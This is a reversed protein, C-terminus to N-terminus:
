SNWLIKQHMQQLWKSIEYADIHMYFLVKWSLNSQFCVCTYVICTGIFVCVGTICFDCFTLHSTEFETVRESSGLHIRSQAGSFFIRIDFILTDCSGFIITIFIYYSFLNKLFYHFSNTFSLMNIILTDNRYTYM